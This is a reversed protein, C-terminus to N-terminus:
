PITPLAALPGGRRFISLDSGSSVSVFAVPSREGLCQAIQTSRALLPREELRAPERGAGECGFRSVALPDVSGAHV